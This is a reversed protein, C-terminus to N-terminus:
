SPISQKKNIITDIADETSSQKELTTDIQKQVTEHSLSSSLRHNKSSPNKELSTSAQKTKFSIRQPKTDKKQEIMRLADLLFSQEEPTIAWSITHESHTINPATPNLHAILHLTNTTTNKTLEIKCHIQSASM